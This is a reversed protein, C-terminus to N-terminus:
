RSARRTAPESCSVRDAGLDACAEVLYNTAADPDVDVIDLEVEIRDSAALLENAAGTNAYQNPAFTRVFQEDGYRDFFTVRVYPPRRLGGSKNAITARVQLVDNNDNMPVVTHRVVDYDRHRAPFEIPYGAEDYIDRLREGYQAHQALDTRFHHAVQAGLLGLLLLAALSGFIKQLPSLGPRLYQMLDDRDHRDDADEAVSTAAITPPLPAATGPPESELVIHEVDEADLDVDSPALDSPADTNAAPPDIDQAAEALDPVDSSQEVDSLEAVDVPQEDEVLVDRYELPRRQDIMPPTAPGDSDTADADALEAPAPAPAVSEDADPANDTSAPRVLGREVLADETLWEDDAANVDADDPDNADVQELADAQEALDNSHTAAEDLSADFLAQGEDGGFLEDLELRDGDDQADSRTAIDDPADSGPWHEDLMAIAEDMDMHQTTELSLGVDHDTPIDANLPDAARQAGAAPETNPDNAATNATAEDTTRPADDVILTELAEEADDDALSDVQHEFADADEFLGEIPDSPPPAADSSASPELDPAAASERSPQRHEQASSNEAAEDTDHPDTSPRSTADTRDPEQSAAEVDGALHPPADAGSEDDDDVAALEAELQAEFDM